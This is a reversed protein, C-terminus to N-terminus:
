PASRERVLSWLEDLAASPEGRRGLRGRLEDLLGLCQGRTKPGHVSWVTPSWPDNWPPMKLMTWGFVSRPLEALWRGLWGTDFRVARAAERMGAATVHRLERNDALVRYDWGCRDLGAAQPAQLALSWRFLRRTSLFARAPLGAATLDCAFEQAAAIATFKGEASVWSTTRGFPFWRLTRSSGDHWAGFAAHYAFVPGTVGADRVPTTVEDLTAAAIGWPVSMALSRAADRVADRLQDGRVCVLVCDHPPPPDGPEIIRPVRCSFRDPEDVRDIELDGFHRSTGPRVLWTVEHGARVLQATVLGGVAGAGVVVVRM